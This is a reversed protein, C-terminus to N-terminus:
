KESDESAQLVYMRPRRCINGVLQEFQPDNIQESRAVDQVM